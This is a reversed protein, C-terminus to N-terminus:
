TLYPRAPLPPITNEQVEWSHLTSFFSPRSECTYKIMGASRGLCTILSWHKRRPPIGCFAGPPNASTPRNRTVSPTLCIHHARTVKIVELNM